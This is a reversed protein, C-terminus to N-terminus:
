TEEYRSPFLDNVVDVSLLTYNHFFLLRYFVQNNLPSTVITQCKLAGSPWPRGSTQLWDSTQVMESLGCKISPEHRGLHKLWGFSMGKKFDM